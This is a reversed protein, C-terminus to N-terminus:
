DFLKNKILDLYFPDGITDNIAYDCNYCRVWWRVVTSKTIVKDEFTHKYLVLSTVGCCICEKIKYFSHANKESSAFRESRSVPDKYIPDYYSYNERLHYNHNYSARGIEKLHGLKLLATSVDKKRSNFDSVTFQISLIEAIVDINTATVFFFPKEIGHINCHVDVVKKVVEVIRQSVLYDLAFVNMLTIGNHTIKNRWETLIEFTNYFTIDNLFEYHALVEKFERSDKNYYKFVEKLRKLTEAAEITNIENLEISDDIYEVTHRTKTPFKLKLKPNLQGLIDKILIEFFRHFNLITFILNENYGTLQFALNKREWYESNVYFGLSEKVDRSTLFYHYFADYLSFYYPLKVQFDEGVRVENSAFFKRLQEINM